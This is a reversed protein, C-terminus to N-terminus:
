WEPVKLKLLPMKWSSQLLPNLICYPNLNHLKQHFNCQIHIEVTSHQSPPTPLVITKFYSKELKLMLTILFAIDFLIMGTKLINCILICKEKLSFAILQKEHKSDRRPFILLFVCEKKM